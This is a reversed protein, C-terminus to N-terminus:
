GRSLFCTSDLQEFLQRGLRMGLNQRSQDGQRIFLLGRRFYHASYYRQHLYLTLLALHNEQGALQEPTGVGDNIEVAAAPLDLDEEFCILCVSCIQPNGQACRWHRPVAPRSPM